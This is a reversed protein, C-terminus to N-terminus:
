LGNLLNSTSNKLPAYTTTIYNYSRKKTNIVKLKFLYKCSTLKLFSIEFM